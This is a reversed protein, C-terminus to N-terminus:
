FLKGDATSSIKFTEFPSAAYENLSLQQISILVLTILRQYKLTCYVLATFNEIFISIKQSTSYNNRISFICSKLKTEVEAKVFTPKPKLAFM